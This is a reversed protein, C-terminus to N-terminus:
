GAESESRRRRFGSGPWTEKRIAENGRMEQGVGIVPALWLAAAFVIHGPSRM